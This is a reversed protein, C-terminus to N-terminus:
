FSYGLKLDLVHLQDKYDKLNEYNIKAVLAHKNKLLYNCGLAFRYGGIFNEPLLYDSKVEHNFYRDYIDLKSSKFAFLSNALSAEIFPRFNTKLYTYKLGLGSAVKLADFKYTYYISYKGEYDCAGTFKSLSLDLILALSKIFRPCTLTLQGSVVPMLSKSEISYNQLLYAPVSKYDVYQIGGALSLEADFFASLNDNAYVINKTSNNGMEINYKSTLEIFDKRQFAAFAARASVRASEKFVNAIVKRYEVDNLYMNYNSSRNYLVRKVELGSVNSIRDKKKTVEILENKTKEFFYHDSNENDQYFYLNVTGMVLVELFVMEKDISDINIEHSIYYRGEKAFKYGAIQKPKFIKVVDNESSKFRCDISNLQDSRFDILGKLTDNKLGIIIAPKFNNSAPLASVILLCILIAVTKKM